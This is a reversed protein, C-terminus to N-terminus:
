ASRFLAAFQARPNKPRPELRERVWKQVPPSSERAATQADPKRQTETELQLDIQNRKVLRAGNM